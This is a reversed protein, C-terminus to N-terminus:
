KDSNIEKIFVAGRDSFVVHDPNIRLVTAGGILDGEHLIKDNIVALRQDSNEDWAIASLKCDFLEAIAPVESGSLIGASTAPATPSAPEFEPAVVAAGMSQAQFGPVQRQDDTRVARLEGSEDIITDGVVGMKGAKTSSNESQSLMIARSDLEFKYRLLNSYNATFFVGALILGVVLGSLAPIVSSVKKRGREVARRTDKLEKVMEKLTTEVGQLSLSNQVPEEEELKKQRKVPSKTPMSPNRQYKALVDRISEELLQNLRKDEQVALIKFQKLLDRDITTNLRNKRKSKPMAEVKRNNGV